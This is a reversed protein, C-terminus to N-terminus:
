KIKSRILVILLSFFLGAIFAHPMYAKSSKTILLGSSVQELFPNYDLTFNKTDNLLKNLYAIKYTLVKTGQYFLENPENIFSQIEQISQLIPNELDIKKAIELHYQYINIKYSIIQM